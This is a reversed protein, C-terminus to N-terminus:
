PHAAVLVPRVLIAKQFFHSSVLTNKAAEDRMMFVILPFSTNCRTQSQHSQNQKWLLAIRLDSLVLWAPFSVLNLLNWKTRKHRTPRYVYHYM